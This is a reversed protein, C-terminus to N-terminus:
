TYDFFVTEREGQLWIDWRYQREGTARAVLTDRRAAPVQVLITSQALGADPDLFVATFQHKLLGRSFLTVFMAPEGRGTPPAAIHLRFVGSDDTPVRRFAPLVRQSEVTAAHPTWAELVADTVPVGDGDYVTGFITIAAKDPLAAEFAWRWGEHPFPGITQSGTIKSAM